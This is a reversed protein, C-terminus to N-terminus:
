INPTVTSRCLVYGTAYVCADVLVVMSNSPIFSEASLCLSQVINRIKCNNQYKKPLEDDMADNLVNWFNSIVSFVVMKWEM